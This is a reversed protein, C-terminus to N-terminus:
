PGAEITITSNFSGDCWDNFSQLVRSLTIASSLTCDAEVFVKPTSEYTVIIRDPDSTDTFETIIITVRWFCDTSNAAVILVSIEMFGNQKCLRGGLITVFFLETGFCIDSGLPENGFDEVTFAGDVDVCDFDATDPCGTDNTLGPSGIDVVIDAPTSFGSCCNECNCCCDADIAFAGKDLLFKGNELQLAM